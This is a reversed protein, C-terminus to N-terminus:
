SKPQEVEEASFAPFFGFRSVNIGTMALQQIALKNVQDYLKVTDNGVEAFAKQLDGDNLAKLLPNEDEKMPAIANLDGAPPNLPSQGNLAAELMKTMKAIMEGQEKVQVELAKTQEAKELEAKEAAEKALKDEEAKKALEAQEAIYKEVAAKEIAAKELDNVDDEKAVAASTTVAPTITEAAKALVEAGCKACKTADAEMLAGCKVCKAADAKAMALPPKAQTAPNAASVDSTADIAGLTRTLLQEAGVTDGSNLMQCAEAVQKSLDRLLEMPNDAAKNLTKDTMAKEQQREVQKDTPSFKYPVGFTESAMRTIRRGLVMWETPSYKERRKGLNYDTVSQAALVKAMPFAYNAPDAYQQWDNPYNEPPQIPEGERRAIGVRSGRLELEATVKKVKELEQERLAELKEVSANFQEAIKVFASAWAPMEQKELFNEHEAAEDHVPADRVIDKEDIDHDDLHHVTGGDMLRTEVVGAPQDPNVEKIVGPHPVEQYAEDETNVAGETRGEEVEVEGSGPFTDPVQPTLLQPALSNVDQNIEDFKQVGEQTLPSVEGEAKVVGVTEPQYSAFKKMEVTGDMKVLQFTATPVAPADVLSIEHPDATYRTLGMDMWRKAYDGGVSFGTYVGDLVKKWENDDSIYTGIDVAKEGDNFDMAILKGAAIPQHMARLNGKSKGMSRKVVADSWKRFYPVSTEYDFIERHGDPVEQTARGWVERKEVNVKTLPIFMALKEAM